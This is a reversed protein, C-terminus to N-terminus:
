KKQKAVYQVGSINRFHEDQTWLTAQYAQATALILSDALPLSLDHSLKAASLVLAADLDVVRGQMMLAVAKLADDEGRQQYVRKFLEYLSIVPVVLNEIDEIALTFFDANPEEALYELWGSSDIVNM